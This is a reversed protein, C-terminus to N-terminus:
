HYLGLTSPSIQSSTSISFFLISVCTSFHNLAYHSLLIHFSNPRLSCLAIYSSFTPAPPPPPPPPSNFSTTFFILTIFRIKCKILKRAWWRDAWPWVAVVPHNISIFIHIWRGQFKNRFNSSSSGVAVFLM